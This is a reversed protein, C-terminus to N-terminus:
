RTATKMMSEGGEIFSRLDRPLDIDASNLYIIDGGVGLELGVYQQNNKLFQLFRM